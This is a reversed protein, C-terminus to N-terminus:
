ACKNKKSIVHVSSNNMLSTVNNLFYITDTKFVHQSLDYWMNFPQNLDFQIHQRGQSFDIGAELYLPSKSHEAILEGGNNKLVATM